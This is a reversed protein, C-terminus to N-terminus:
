ANNGIVLIDNASLTRVNLTAITVAAGAGTGDADFSLVGTRTNFV